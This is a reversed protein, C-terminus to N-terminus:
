YYFLIAMYFLFLNKQSQLKILFLQLHVINTPFNSVTSKPQLKHYYYSFQELRPSYLVNM